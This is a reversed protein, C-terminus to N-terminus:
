VPTLVSMQLVVQEVYEASGVATSTRNSVSRQLRLVLGSVSDLWLEEHTIGETTGSTETEIAVRVASRREGGVVITDATATGRRFERVGDGVCTTDIASGAAPVWAPAPQCTLRRHEPQGFFEYANTYGAVTVVSGARCLEITYTRELYPQWSLDVGCATASVVVGTEVPYERDVGTLLDLSESGRTAYAYVGVPPLPIPPATTPPSITNAATIRSTTISSTTISSTTTTTATTTSIARRSLEEASIPTTDNSWKGWMAWGTGSVVLVAAGIAVVVRRNTRWHM